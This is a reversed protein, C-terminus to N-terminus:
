QIMLSFKPHNKQSISLLIVITSIIIGNSDFINFVCDDHASVKYDLKTVLIDRFYDYWIRGAESTGYLAYDLEVIVSANDSQFSTYFESLEQSISKIIDVYAKTLRVCITKRDAPMPAKTFAQKVDFSGIALNKPAAHAAVAFFSSLSATPTSIERYIDYKGRDQRNGGVVFRGKIREESKERVLGHGPLIDQREVKPIDIFKIPHWRNVLGRFEEKMSEEVKVSNLERRAKAYPLEKKVAFSFQADSSGLEGGLFFASEREYTMMYSMKDSWSDDDTYAATADVLSITSSDRRLLNVPAEVISEDRFGTLERLEEIDTSPLSNISKNSMQTKAVRNIRLIISIPTYPLVETTKVDRFITAVRPCDISDLVLLKHSGRITKPYLYICESRREKATSNHSLGNDVPSLVIEGFSAVCM